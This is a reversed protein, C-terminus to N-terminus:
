EPTQAKTTAIPKTTKEKDIKKNKKKLCFVAYSIRMLSQLESTHEESRKRMLAGNVKNLKTDDNLKAGDRLMLDEKFGDVGWKGVGEVYWRVAQPNHGDLLHVNGQPFNVKYVESLGDKGKVFYSNELGQSSFPGDNLPEYHGGRDKQAKFNIRLLDSSCVDSSWDSIRMEYAM